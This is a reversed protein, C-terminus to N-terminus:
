SPAHASQEATATNPHTSAPEARQQATNLNPMLEAQDQPRRSRGEFNAGQELTFLRHYIDGEVISNAKLTVDIARITGYVQGEVLVAEANVLGTVRGKEGIIVKSGLVDGQVEGDIQLTGQSVIKLGSGIITLDTGIVSVGGAPAPAAPRQTGPVGPPKPAGFANSPEPTRPPEKDTSRSFM